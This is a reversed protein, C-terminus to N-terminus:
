RSGPPKGSPTDSSRRLPTVEVSSDSRCNPSSAAHGFNHFCAGLEAPVSPLHSSRSPIRRLRLLKNVLQQRLSGLLAQIERATWAQLADRAAQESVVGYVAPLQGTVNKRESYNVWRLWTREWLKTRARRSVPRVPLMPRTLAPWSLAAISDNKLRGCFFTRLRPPPLGALLEPERGDDEDLPGVVPSGALVGEAAQVRDLELDGGSRERM